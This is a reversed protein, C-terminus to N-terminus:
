RALATHWASRCDISQRWTTMGLPQGHQQRALDARGRYSRAGHPPASPLTRTRVKVRLGIPPSRDGRNQRGSFVRSTNACETVAHCFAPQRPLERSLCCISSCSCVVRPAFFSFIPVTLANAATQSTALLPLLPVAFGSSAFPLGGM